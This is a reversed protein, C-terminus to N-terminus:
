RDGEIGGHRRPDGQEVLPMAHSAVRTRQGESASRTRGVRMATRAVQSSKGAVRPANGGARSETDAILLDKANEERHGAVWKRRGADM